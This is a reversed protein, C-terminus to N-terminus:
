TVFSPRFIGLIGHVSGEPLVEDRCSSSFIDAVIRLIYRQVRKRLNQELVNTQLSLFTIECMSIKLEVASFTAM